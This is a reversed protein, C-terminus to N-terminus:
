FWSWEMDMEALAVTKTVVPDCSFGSESSPDWCFLLHVLEHWLLAHLVSNVGLELHVLNQDSPKSCTWKTITDVNNKNNQKKGM